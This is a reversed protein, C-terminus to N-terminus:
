KRGPPLRLDPGRPYRAPNSQIEAWVAWVNTGVKEAAERVAREDVRMVLARLQVDYPSALELRAAPKPLNPQNHADPMIDAIALPVGRANGDAHIFSTSGPFRARGRVQIAM